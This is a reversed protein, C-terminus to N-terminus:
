EHIRKLLWTMNVGLTEMCEMGEEDADVEGPLRGLGINWYSSGPVIMQCMLFLHNITDFAHIAGGRRVSIVAAGVKFRLFDGGSRSLMGTRDILAKMEATVDAFYTPSAFIIGDAERMKEIYDNLDDTQNACQGNRTEYCKMCALCGHLPKGGIRVMETEIGNSELIDFVRRVLHESNGDPRPSGLFAVVKM